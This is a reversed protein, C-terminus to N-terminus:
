RRPQGLQRTLEDQLEKRIDEMPEEVLFWAIHLGDPELYRYLVPYKDKLCGAAAGAKDLMGLVSLILLPAGRAKAMGRKIVENTVKVALKEMVPGVVTGILLKKTLQKGILEKVLDPIAASAAQKVQQEQEETLWHRAALAAAYGTGIKGVIETPETFVRLILAFFALDNSTLEELESPDWTAKIAAKGYRGVHLVGRGLDVIYEVGGVVFSQLWEGRRRPRALKSPDNPRMRGEFYFNRELSEGSLMREHEEALDDLAIEWSWQVLRLRDRWELDQTALWQIFDLNPLHQAADPSSVPDIQRRRIADALSHPAPVEGEVCKEIVLLPNRRERLRQRQVLRRRQLQAPSSAPSADGRALAAVARNGAHRQLVVVPSVDAIRDEDCVSTSCRGRSAYVRGVSM